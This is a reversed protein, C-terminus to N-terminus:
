KSSSIELDCIVGGMEFLYSCFDDQFINWKFINEM